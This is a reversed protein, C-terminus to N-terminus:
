LQRPASCVFGVSPIENQKIIVRNFKCEWLRLWDENPCTVFFRSRSVPRDLSIIKVGVM